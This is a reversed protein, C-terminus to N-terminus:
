EVSWRDGHRDIWISGFPDATADSLTAFFMRNYKCQEILKHMRNRRLCVWLVPDIEAEYAAFRKQIKKHDRVSGTDLEVWYHNTGITMEGDPKLRRDTEYVRKWEADTYLLAFTTLHYEHTFKDCPPCRANFYLDAPRGYPHIQATGIHKVEGKKRLRAIRQYAKALSPFHHQM